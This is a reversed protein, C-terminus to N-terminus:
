LFIIVSKISTIYSSKLLAAASELKCLINLYTFVIIFFALNEIKKKNKSNNEEPNVLGKLKDKFM